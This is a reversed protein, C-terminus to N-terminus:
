GHYYQITDKFKRWREFIRRLVKKGPVILTKEKM